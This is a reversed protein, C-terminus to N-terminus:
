FRGGISFLSPNGPNKLERRYDLRSMMLATLGWSTPQAASFYNKFVINERCIRDLEPTIGEPMAPNFERIFALELSEVAIIIVRDYVAAERVAEAANDVAPVTVRLQNRNDIRMATSTRCRFDWRVAADDETDGSPFAALHSHNVEQCRHCATTDPSFIGSMLFLVLLVFFGALCNVFQRLIKSENNSFPM